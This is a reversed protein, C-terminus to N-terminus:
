AISGHILPLVIDDVLHRGFDDDLAAGFAMRRMVQGEIVEHVLSALRAAAAPPVEGRSAARAVIEAAVADEDLLLTRLSVALAPDQKMAHTLGGMMAMFEPTLHDRM